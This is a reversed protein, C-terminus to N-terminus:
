RFVKTTELPVQLACRMAQKRRCSNVYFLPGSGYRTIHSRHLVRYRSFPCYNHSVFFCTLLRVFFTAGACFFIFGFAGFGATTVSM